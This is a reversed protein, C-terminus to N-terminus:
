RFVRLDQLQYAEAFWVLALRKYDRYRSEQYGLADMVSTNPWPLAILYVKTLIFRSREDLANVAQITADVQRSADLRQIIRTDQNNQTRPQRPMGDPVPSRLADITRGARLLRNHHGALFKRVRAATKSTDLEDM